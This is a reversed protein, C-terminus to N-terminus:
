CRIIQFRNLIERGSLFFPPPLDTFNFRLELFKNLYNSEFRTLSL